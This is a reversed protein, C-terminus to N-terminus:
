ISARGTRQHGPRVALDRYVRINTGFSGSRVEVFDCVQHVVRLGHGGQATGSLHRGALPDSIHGTDTIECVLRERETWIRLTGHGGAHAITNAALEHVAIVLDDLGQDALGAQAAYDGTFRRVQRLNDRQYRLVAADAPAPPQPEAGIALALDIGSYAQSPGSRGHAAIQPHTQYAQALTQSDLGARDYPCMITTPVGSFAANILAEHRTAERTEADTRGAWIPEGVFRTRGPHADTFRRIAPIIRAPNRGLQQMDTFTVADAAGNLALGLMRLRAAPVAVLVPEGAALGDRVFGGVQDLYDQGTEYFVALHRFQTGATMDSTTATM